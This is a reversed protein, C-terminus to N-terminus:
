KSGKGDTKAKKAKKGGSSGRKRKKSKPPEVGNLNDSIRKAMDKMRGSAALNNTKLYEVMEKQSYWNFVDAATIGKALDPKTKSVKVVKIPKKVTKEANRGHIFADILQKKSSCESGDLKTDGMWQQLEAVAFQSLFLTLGKETIWDLIDNKSKLYLAIVFKQSAGSSLSKFFDELEDEDNAKEFILKKLVHKANPSKGEDPKLNLETTIFALDQKPLQELASDLGSAIADSALLENFKKRRDKEDLDPEEDDLGGPYHVYIM